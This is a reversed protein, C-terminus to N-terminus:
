KRDTVGGRSMADLAAQAASRERQSLRENRIAEHYVMRADEAHGQMRHVDALLLYVSGDASNRGIIGKLIKIAEETNGKRREFFALTYGYKADEPRLQCAKRGWELKEDLRENPLLVSLNYAAAALTPDSKLAKRLYAEGQGLDNQEAKLLGMNFNAEASNPNIALAKQLSQQAKSPDGLRAFAISANVFPMITGPQFQSAREFSVAAMRLEGRDLFYNGLNYYSHWDDPRSQLCAEYEDSAAKLRQQDKEALRERPFPALAAAARIRVVRFADQTAQLLASRVEPTLNDGLAPAAASRILPSPNKLADLIVPWKSQDPCARLLRILSASTVEDADRSKLYALIDPLKTWDRKRAADILMSRHLVPAQYDRSRWKRVWEDAWEPTKDAHCINCANPSKLAITAAPTPPLMSHDSRRMRAFETMPMHCGVCTNGPSDMKHHTHSAPDKVRAEHCPLCANNTKEGKFKYRGSSTHCHLCDLKGAKVCPSMRWTTYTFNEGLDRGDPYYDSDELTVLDFHDFFQDGPKFAETIPTAKAHCSSCTANNQEHSFDRGGRIIKWDKLVAGKPLPKCVRIHEEAPGHCTECNIGPEKWSTHYTNTKVDYNRSLRSVHCGYCSTNFTLDPETWPIAEDRRDTFHRVMSATTNYWEKKRVDYALPLVQLRGRDMPTLFYYVNKGGMVHEIPYNKEGNPGTERVWGQAIGTHSKYQQNGIAIDETQATLARQAFEDTYPQMALGHHSPAWLQYFKEHCERCSVSGVYSNEPPVASSKAPNESAISAVTCFIATIVMAFVVIVNGGFRSKSMQTGM